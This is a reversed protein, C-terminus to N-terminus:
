QRNQHEGALQGCGAQIDIGRRLRITCPIGVTELEAVFDRARSLPTAKGAYEHTPNLPIVNVHCIIGRILKILQRADQPSDNVDQILAWEFTLRRGTIEVYERCANILEDLPYKKNIPLLSSRLDDNAAHLSVALNIQRKESAFRRIMPVLGVTSITIRRAGLNFGSQDNLRDMAALTNDYNHFPEGMGMVVVNTVHEGEIALRRAYYLVQEVIEGSTLSRSFGMQGTACFVCGMACGAQTSICLTRRQDYNMLVAEVSKGDLTAFLTKVTEGDSSLQTDIPTLGKFVADEAMRTKLEGPLNSWESPASKLNRYLGEWIQNVRFAPQKWTALLEKLALRELDYILPKNEM